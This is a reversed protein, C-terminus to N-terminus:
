RLKMQARAAFTRVLTVRLFWAAFFYVTIGVFVRTAIGAVGQGPTCAVVVGMCMTAAFIKVTEAGLRPVLGCRVAYCGSWVAGSLFAGAVALAAGLAGYVPILLFTLGINLGAMGIAVGSQHWTARRLQFATDLVYSKVGAIWVSLAVVPMIRAAEGAITEPLLLDALERSLLGFGTVMPLGLALFPAALANLRANAAPVGGREFADVIAPFGALFLVNLLSGITQQAFDYGAAYGAVSAAGLQAGLVFRGFVDVILVATLTSVFPLGYVAAERAIAAADRTEAGQSPAPRFSLVGALFGLSIGLLAGDVGAGGLLFAVSAALGVVMRLMTITGYALPRGGANAFQLHLNHWGQAVSLLLVLGVASLSAGFRSRLMAAVVALIVAGAVALAFLLYAARYFSRAAERHAAFIRSVAVCIWQFLVTSVVTAASLSLAFRGYDEQSMIRTLVALTLLALVGNGVRVIFYIFSDRAM